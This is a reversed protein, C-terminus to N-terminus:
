LFVPMRGSSIDERGPRIQQSHMLPFSRFTTASPNGPTALTPRVISTRWHSTGVSARVPQLLLLDPKHKEMAEVASAVYAAEAVLQMNPYQSLLDRLEARALRSDEVIMVKM